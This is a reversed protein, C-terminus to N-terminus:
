CERRECSGASNVVGQLGGFTQVAAAVAAEVSDTETVDTLAFLVQSGLEDMFTGGVAGNIDGVVVNAGQDVFRRVSAEGLGSCGGIVLPTNGALKM